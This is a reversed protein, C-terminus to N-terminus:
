PGVELIWSRPGTPKLIHGCAEVSLMFGLDFGGIDKGYFDAFAKQWVDGMTAGEFPGPARECWSIVDRDVM